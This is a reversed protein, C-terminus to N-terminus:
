CITEVLSTRPRILVNSSALNHRVLMSCRKDKTLLMYRPILALLSVAYVGKLFVDGFINTDLNGRGQIGGFVMDTGKVPAIALCEKEIMVDTNGVAVSVVPLQDIPTNAPFIWGQQTPDLKAGPITSYIQAVLEDQIIMLTTGTDAIATNGTLPIKKGNITMSESAFSWFGSSADVPTYSIQGGTAQVVDDDIKGFTYFSQGHDPDNADKYSGIYCTFLEQSEPIDGQAIM